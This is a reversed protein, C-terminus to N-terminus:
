EVVEIALRFIPLRYGLGLSPHDQLATLQPIQYSWPPKGHGQFIMPYIDVLHVGPGGTAVLTMTVDGNSNFGCAYGIHANDYTAAFGNDLETWGIGKVKVTFTEGAKVRQPTVSVLSRDVYFPVEALAKEGQVLKVVHWGGLDDPIQVDARLSGDQATTTKLLPTEVLNWGSPSLRNGRATVWILNVETNGPLGSAKLVSKSLIPGSAPAFVALVGPVALLNGATTRPIASSTTAVRSSDPWELSSPPPGSERTVTFVWRFDKDPIHSWRFAVPAQQVNLYPQGTSSQIVQITHKGVPGAARIQFVATGRTTVSSIFGMHANDYRLALTREFPKWGMGQVTITLLTGVAGETPALTATTLIRFGGKAVEQGDALAYIDHADGYDEPATFTATIRGQADAVASGLAVRREVFQPEHFEVNEASAKTVFDGSWTAWQFQTGKGPPFGEGSVAFPTGATGKEPSVKLIKLPV